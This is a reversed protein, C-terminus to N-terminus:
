VYGVVVFVCVFCEGDDVKLMVLITVILRFIWAKSLRVRALCMAGRSIASAFLGEDTSVILLWWFVGAEDGDDDKADEDRDNDTM